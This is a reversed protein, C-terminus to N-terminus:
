RSPADAITLETQNEAIASQVQDTTSVRLRYEGPAVEHPIQWKVAVYDGDPEDDALKELTERVSAVIQDRDARVLEVTAAMKVMKDAKGRALGELEWYVLITAGPTINVDPIAVFNGRGRVASCIAMRPIVIGGHGSKVAPDEPKLPPLTETVVAARILNSDTIVRDSLPQLPRAAEATLELEGDPQDILSQNLQGTGAVLKEAIIKTTAPEAVKAPLPPLTTEQGPLAPVALTMKKTAADTQASTQVLSTEKKLEPQISFVKPVPHAPDLEFKQAPKPLLDLGTLEDPSKGLAPEVQPPFQWAQQNRTM